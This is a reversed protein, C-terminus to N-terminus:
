YDFLGNAICHYQNVGYIALHRLNYPAQNTIRTRFWVYSSLRTCVFGLVYLFIYIRM